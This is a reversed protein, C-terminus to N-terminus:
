ETTRTWAVERGILSFGVYGKVRLVDKDNGDFWMMCKYTNGNNPDYITGNEWENETSNFSFGKLLMLGMIPKKQLESKPNEVDLKPTGDEENPTEMWTIKGYYKGNTARFIKIKADKEETYWFGRVDDAQIQSFASVPLLFFLLYVPLRKM